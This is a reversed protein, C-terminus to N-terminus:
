SAPNGPQGNFERLLTDIDKQLGSAKTAYTRVAEAWEALTLGGPKPFPFQGKIQNLLALSSEISVPFSNDYYAVRFTGENFVLRLKGAKLVKGYHDELVPLLVKNRLTTHLPEWDIDFYHAFQSNRGNALVDAWWTNGCESGMHNPVMDILLGMNRKRLASAMADFDARSGLAPNLADFRCIDYGHTSKAGAQFIPSAYYDSIGLEQLYDLIATAQSFTFDRNFQLRYTSSPIRTASQESESGNGPGTM